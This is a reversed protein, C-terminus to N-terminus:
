LATHTSVAYRCPERCSERGKDVTHCTKSSDMPQPCAYLSTKHSSYCVRVLIERSVLLTIRYTSNASDGVLRSLIFLASMTDLSTTCYISGSGCKNKTDNATIYAIKRAQSDQLGTASWTRSSFDFMTARSNFKFKLECNLECSHNTTTYFSSCIAKYPSKKPKAM